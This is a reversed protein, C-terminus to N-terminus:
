IWGIIADYAYLGLYALGINYCINGLTLPLITRWYSYGAVSLSGVVFDNSFPSVAGYTVLVPAVLRPHARLFGSFREATAAMRPPLSDKVRSGILYMTSDGLMVGIGTCLGLVPPSLGGAALSMLVLHYPIGTFTTFGGVAGLLFMLVYANSTGVTDILAETDLSALGISVTLYVALMGALRLIAIARRRKPPPTAIM